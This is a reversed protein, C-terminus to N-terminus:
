PTFKFPRTFRHVTVCCCSILNPEFNHASKMEAQSLMVFHHSRYVHFFTHEDLQALALSDRLSRPDVVIDTMGKDTRQEEHPDPAAAAVEGVVEM